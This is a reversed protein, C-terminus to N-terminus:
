GIAKKFKAYSERAKRGNIRIIEESKKNEKKIYDIFEEDTM